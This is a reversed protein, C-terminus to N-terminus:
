GQEQMDRVLRRFEEGRQEFNAYQDFSTCAPSLLVVDGPSALERANQVAEALTVVRSLVPRDEFPVTAAHVDVNAELLAGSEGFFVIAACRQLAEQALEEKPLDKDRGGLLLVVPEDFSRLGAVTREPTTAISDNVYTVGDVEAVVELRHPVARFTHIGEVIAESTIGSAAVIAAAALVNAVNHRGRLPIEDVPLLMEEINDRKIFLADDRLLAGSGPLSGTMTFHWVTAATSEAFSSAVEDDLGLVAIDDESQFRVLQRKLDVYDEWSFQDLHNPTVNLVAAVHPGRDTLQLQTHSLEMVTWTNHDIGDLLGLLGVGINGGVRYSRGEAEFMAAVLATTTTKGSSGTIGVIPGPCLEMFFRAMSTLDQGRDRAAALPPLTLPVSQSVFVLDADHVDDDALPQGLHYTIPLSDLEALRSVLSERPKSDTVTVSAGNQAAYRAADVGEIGLGIVTVRKGM